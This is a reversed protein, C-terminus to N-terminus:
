PAPLLGGRNGPMAPTRQIVAARGTRVAIKPRGTDKTQVRIGFANDQVMEGPEVTMPESSSLHAGKPRQAKAGKRQFPAEWRVFMEGNAGM